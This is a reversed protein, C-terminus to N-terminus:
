QQVKDRETVCETPSKQVLTRVTACAEVEGWVINVLSLYWHGRYSEFECDWWALRKRKGVPDNNVVYQVAYMYKKWTKLIRRSVFLKSIEVKGLVHKHFCVMRDNAPGDEVQYNVKVKLGKFGLIAASSRVYKWTFHGYRYGLPVVREKEDM